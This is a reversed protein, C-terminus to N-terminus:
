AASQPAHKAVHPRVATQLLLPHNPILAESKPGILSLFHALNLLDQKARSRLCTPATELTPKRLERCTKLYIEHPNRANCCVEIWYCFQLGRRRGQHLMRDTIAPLSCLM